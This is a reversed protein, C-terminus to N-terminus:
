LKVPYFTLMTFVQVLNIVGSLILICGVVTFLAGVGMLVIPKYKEYSSLIGCILGLVFLLIGFVILTISGIM